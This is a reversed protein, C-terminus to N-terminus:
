GAPRCRPVHLGLTRGPTGQGQLLALLGVSISMQVEACSYLVCAHQGNPSASLIDQNIGWRARDPGPWRMVDLKWAHVAHLKEFYSALARKYETQSVGSFTRAAAEGTCDFYRHPSAEAIRQTHVLSELAFSLEAHTPFRSQDADSLIDR